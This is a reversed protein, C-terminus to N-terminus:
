EPRRRAPRGRQAPPVDVKIEYRMLAAKLTGTDIPLQLLDITRKLNPLYIEKTYRARESEREKGSHGTIADIFASKADTNELETIFRHRLRHLGTRMGELCTKQYYLFAKGVSEGYASHANEDTLEPFLLEGPQRGNCLRDVFDLELLADHLPVIRRSAEDESGDEKKLSLDPANLDIAWIGDKEIIHRVRLQSAEERRMGLFACMLPIWYLADAVIVQGPQHKTHVSKRGTWVPGEFIRKVEDMTYAERERNGAKGRKRIKVGVSDLIAGSGKPIKGTSEAWQFFARWNALHKNFTKPNVRDYAPAARSDPNASRWSAKTAEVIQLPSRDAYNRFRDYGKPLWLYTNRADHIDASTAQAPEKGILWTWLRRSALLEPRRSKKWQKLTDIKEFVLEGWLEHFSSAPLAMEVSVSPTDHALEGDIREVVADADPAPRPAIEAESAGSRPKSTAAIPESRTADAEFNAPRLAQMLADPEGDGIAVLEQMLTAYAQLAKVTLISTTRPPTHGDIGSARLASAIVPLLRERARSDGALARRVLTLHDDLTERHASRLLLDVGFGPDGAIGPVRGAMEDRDLYLRGHDLMNLAFAAAQDARWREIAAEAEEITTMISVAEFLQQAGVRLARAHGLAVAHPITGLRVRLEKRATLRTLRRPLRVRFRWGQGHRELFSNHGVIHGLATANPPM